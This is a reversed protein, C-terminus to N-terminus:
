HAQAEIAQREGERAVEIRRPRAQEAVPITLTLVGQEYTAHIRDADLGDGLFLRRSWRGHPRETALVEDGEVPHWTREAKVTLVNRELEVDITRPDVGPLDFHMVFTDGHRYADMPMVGSRGGGFAEDVMRDLERFPDFRMLM